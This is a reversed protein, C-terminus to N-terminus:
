RIRIEQRRGAERVQVTVTRRASDYGYGEGRDDAAVEGLARGNLTVSQPATAVDHVRLRLTGAPVHYEAHRLERAAVIEGGTRAIEFRTLRYGGREYDHSVGDDEYLEFSGPEAAPLADLTLIRATEEGVYQVPEQTPLIGGAALFTPLRELPADVVVAQGGQYVADSDLHLWRGAPLYVRSMTAGERTVPAVLLREGLLFQHQYEARYVMSDQQHHWFLPRIVPSGTRHAEWFLTYLYPLLQYRRTIFARSIEEVHEGFSWPEQDPTDASTHTRFFPTYAGLQVWRAFLEPSPTGAFGGVDTGIFPLGSLSMGLMMRVGLALHEWSAVNDGTWVASYRQVGAFGARTLVFPRQNPRVRRLEEYATRSMLLGYLNHMRKQSSWRGGDEMVVELPFAKGWVAPENMDNWIGDVGSEILRGLHGGWWQRTEPRSFDPFYTRGPWVSGVYLSRDPYRVFHKGAIGERAVRYATDQKVGPDIITVVKFGMAGLERLMGPPDPFRERDWTFVRYGAMYDIDLYLVDAPIRKERFTRAIRLVETTPTYSWRSQQYGLAWTPPMPMRGTLETYGTVVQRVSPGYILFYDLPGQDAAFSHYRHNGAGFNFTTRASNNLYVGYARGGRLGVFFPISQYLPDHEAGYAFNDSNWLVWEKGRKDLDGTKEGLGFFREDDALRHWARVEDGEWGIAMSSDHEIIPAGRSDLLELRCPRRHVVLTLSDSRLTLRRADETVRVAVPEWRTRAIAHELLPEPAGPRALTVRIMTPTLFRLALRAEPACHLTVGSPAREFSRLEGLFRYQAAAPLAGALGAASLLAM